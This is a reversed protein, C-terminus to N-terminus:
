TPDTEVLHRFAAAIDTRVREPQAEIAKLLCSLEHRLGHIQDILSLIVPLTDDDVALEQRLHCVLRIRAIDFPAAGVWQTADVVLAAGLDRCRTGISELDLLTGDVWHCPPLAAIATDGNLHDLVASTWDGNGPRPVTVVRAGADRAKDMWVFVNSPFQDELVVITQGHAVGLISAATALGYSASPQIAIDDATAGILGAFLARLRESQAETEASNWTWPRLRSQLSDEAAKAVAKLFPTRSACNFWAIDDPIDFLHRQNPLPTM